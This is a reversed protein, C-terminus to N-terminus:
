QILGPNRCTKNLSLKASVTRGKVLPRPPLLHGTVLRLAVRQVILPEFVGVDMGRLLRPNLEIRSDAKFEKTRGLLRAVPGNQEIQAFPDLM